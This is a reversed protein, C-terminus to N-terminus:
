RSPGERERRALREDRRDEVTRKWARYRCWWNECRDRIRFAGPLPPGGGTPQPRDRSPREWRTLFVDDYRLIVDPPGLLEVQEPTLPTEDVHWEFRFEAEGEPAPAVVSEEHPQVWASAKGDAHRELMPQGLADRVEVEQQLYAEVKEVRLRYFPTAGFNKIKVSHADLRTIAISAARERRADARVQQQANHQWLALGLATVVAAFTGLASWAEASM